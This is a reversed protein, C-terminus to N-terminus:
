FHIIPQNKKAMIKSDKTFSQFNAYERVKKEKTSTNFYWAVVIHPYKEVFERKNVKYLEIAEVIPRTKDLALLEPLFITELELLLELFDIWQEASLKLKGSDIASLIENIRLVKQALQAQIQWIAEIQGFVEM